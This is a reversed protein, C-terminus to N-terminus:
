YSLKDNKWDTNAPDFNSRLMFSNKIVAPYGNVRSTQLHSSLFPSPNKPLSLDVCGQSKAATGVKAIPHGSLPQTIRNANSFRGRNPRRTLPRERWLGTAWSAPWWLQQPTVPRMLWD